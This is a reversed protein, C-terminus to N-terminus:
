NWGSKVNGSFAALFMLKASERKNETQHKRRQYTLVKAIKLEPLKNLPFQFIM